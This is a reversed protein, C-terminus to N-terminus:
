SSRNRRVQITTHATVWEQMTSPMPVARQEAEDWLLLVDENSSATTRQQQQMSAFNAEMHRLFLEPPRVHHYVVYHWYAEPWCYVGDTMTCAGMTKPDQRAIACDPFRCYSYALEHSEVFAGNMLYWQLRRLLAANAVVWAHDVLRLPDARGGIADAAAAADGEREHAQCWFGIEVLM